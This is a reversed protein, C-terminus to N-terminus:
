YDIFCIDEWNSKAYDPLANIDALTCVLSNLKGINGEMNFNILSDDYRKLITVLQARNVPDNPGFDGNEYGAIVGKDIMENLADAYYANYDVDPFTLANQAYVIGLSILSGLM